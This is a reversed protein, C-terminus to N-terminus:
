EDEELLRRLQEIKDKGLKSQKGFHMLLSNMDGRFVRKLFSMGEDRICANRSRLAKYRTPSGSHVRELFGKEVLRVLLTRVTRHNWETSDSLQKIVEAATPKGLDWVAQMVIWEADSTTTREKM